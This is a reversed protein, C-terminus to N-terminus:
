IAFAFMPSIKGVTDLGMPFRTRQGVPSGLRGVYCALKEEKWVSVRWDAHLYPPSINVGAIFGAFGSSRAGSM